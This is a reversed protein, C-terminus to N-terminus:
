DEVTTNPFSYDYHQGLSCSCSSLLDTLCNFFPHPWFGMQALWCPWILHSTERRILTIITADWRNTPDQSWFRICKALHIYPPSLYSLSLSYLGKDHLLCELSFIQKECEERNYKKEVNSAMPQAHSTELSLSNNNHCTVVFAHNLTLEDQPQDRLWAVSRTWCYHFTEM